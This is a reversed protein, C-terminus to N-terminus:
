RVRRMKAVFFGDTNDSHPMFTYMGEKIEKGNVTIPVPVFDSNESLFRKVNDENEAKCLTCTSYLLVGGCKVYNKVNSLIDYQVKPLANIGDISKYKIEPKKFIVGLGSCPVDCIVRDFKRECELAYTKANQEKVRIIDIGLTNAGKEILTLKNAHLDSSYLEGKNQMDIAISFSKGGPCACVDAIIEGSQADLLQSAVRSAEDQVFLLGNELLDSIQSISATCLVVDRAISSTRAEIGREKLIAIIGDTSTRLSNVRLSTHNKPTHTLLKEVETDKYSSRFLNILEMPVSYEISLAEWKDKPLAIKKGDRIFSRLIANVLGKSRKPAIRVSEDVASYEPIKDTLILQYIGLRLANKTEPDLLDINTRSYKKIVHDLYMRKEIVGLYLRTYLASDSPELRARKLTTSIEINTYCESVDSKILSLLALARPNDM